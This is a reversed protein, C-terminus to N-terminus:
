TLYLTLGGRSSIFVEGNGSSYTALKPDAYIQGSSLSRYENAM